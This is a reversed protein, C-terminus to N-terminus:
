LYLKLGLYAYNLNSNIQIISGTVGFGRYLNLDVGFRGVCLSPTNNIRYLPGAYIRLYDTIPYNYELFTYASNHHGKDVLQTGIMYNKYGVQAIVAGAHICRAYGLAYVIDSDLTYSTPKHYPSCEQGQVSFSLLLLLALIKV